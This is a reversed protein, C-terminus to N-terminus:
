GLREGKRAFESPDTATHRIYPPHGIPGWIFTKQYRLRAEHNGYPTGLPPCAIPVHRAKEIEGNMVWNIKIESAKRFSGLAHEYWWEVVPLIHAVRWVSAQFYWHDSLTLPQVSMQGHTGDPASVVRYSGFIPFYVEKKYWRTEGEGKYPMTERKNFRIQNLDHSEMLTMADLVPVPRLFEWDDQTYFCYPGRVQKLLWYLAPGHFIPPDDFLVVCDVAKPVCEEIVQKIAAQEGPFVADDHIFVRSPTPCLYQFVSLLSTRLHKPRSASPIIVDYAYDTSIM